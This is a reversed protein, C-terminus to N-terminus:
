YKILKQNFIGAKDSNIKIFYIGSPLYSINLQITKDATSCATLINGYSNMIQIISQSKDDITKNICLTNGAPNPYLAYLNEFCETERIGVEAVMIASMTSDFRGCHSVILKVNYNGPGTYQHTVVPSYSISGDGFDWYYHTAYQSTSEFDVLLGPLINYNFSAQPDYNGINWYILSDFVVLKAALRIAAADITGLSYNQTINLPDKRFIASYFSCAAAYTGAASPHSEDASYLEINPYHDRIYHWVAGVPSLVAENTDALMIYRLRLLSDMGHYTCVPPWAACNSADGNKRGWTMFFMTEGCINCANIISDLKHAYPFCDALVQTLPFSPLQSQEQLIVFDWNGQTIKSLSTSNTSHMELTYGGPSNSDADLTDGASAALSRVLAPLDNVYTYSNGLFLVKRYGDTQGLAHLVM